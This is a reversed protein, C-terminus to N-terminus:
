RSRVRRWAIGAIALLGAATGFVTGPEPADLPDLLGAGTGFTLTPNILINTVLAGNVITATLGSGGLNMLGSTPTALGTSTPDLLPAQGVGTTTTPNSGSLLISTTGSSGTDTSGNLFSYLYSQVAASAASQVASSTSTSSGAPAQINNAQLIASMLSNSVDIGSTLNTVADTTISNPASGAPQSISNADAGVGLVLVALSALVSQRM